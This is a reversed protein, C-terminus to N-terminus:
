LVSRRLVTVPRSFQSTEWISLKTEMNSPAALRVCSEPTEPHFVADSVLVLPINLFALERSMNTSPAEQFTVPTVSKALMNAPHALRTVSSIEPQDMSADEVLVSINAEQPLSPVM